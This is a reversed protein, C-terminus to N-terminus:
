CASINTYDRLHCVVHLWGPVFRALHCHFSELSVSGRGCRYMKLQIGGKVVSGIETYLQVVSPDPDQICKVHTKEVKWIGAMVDDDFLEMGLTDRDADGSLSTILRDILDITQETGRTRRRCHLALELRTLSHAADKESLGTVAAKAQCLRSIDEPDWEFICASLRSMLVGYLPHSETKVGRALRRMFHWIDLRVLMNWPEYLKPVATGCCDRDVYLLVPPAVGAQSYRHVLGRAMDQIGSGEATTLVCTLVQGFENGVDTAWQATKAARGALKRTIKKTSDMKLITGFTSTLKAKVDDIRHLVDRLYVSMLWRPGPLTPQPPPPVFQHQKAFPQCATMYQIGHVLWRESHQKRLKNCLQTVSNGLSRERMLRVVRM